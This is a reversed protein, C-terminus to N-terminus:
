TLNEEAKYLISYLESFSFNEDLKEKTLNSCSNYTEKMKDLARIVKRVEYKLEYNDNM